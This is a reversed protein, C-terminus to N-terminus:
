RTKLSARYREAVRDGARCLQYAAVKDTWASKAKALDAQARAEPTPPPLTASASAAVFTVILANVTRM